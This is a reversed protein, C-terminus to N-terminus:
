TSRVPGPADLNTGPMGSRASDLAARGRRCNADSGLGNDEPTLSISIGTAADGSAALERNM